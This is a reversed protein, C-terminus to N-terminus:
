VVEVRWKSGSNIMVSELRWLLDHKVIVKRVVAAMVLADMRAAADHHGASRFLRAFRRYTEINDQNTQLTIM